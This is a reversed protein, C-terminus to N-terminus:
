NKFSRPGKRKKKIKELMKQKEADSMEGKGSLQNARKKAKNNVKKAKEDKVPEKKRKKWVM